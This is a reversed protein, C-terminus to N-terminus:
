KNTWDDCTGDWDCGSCEYCMLGEKKKSFPCSVYFNGWIYAQCLCPFCGYILILVFEPGPSTSAHGPSCGQSSSCWSGESTKRQKLFSWALIDASQQIFTPSLWPSLVIQSAARYVRWVLSGKAQPATGAFLDMCTTVVQHYRLDPHWPCLGTWSESSPWLLPAM